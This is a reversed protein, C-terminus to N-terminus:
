LKVVFDLLTLRSYIRSNKWNAPQSDKAFSEWTMKELELEM